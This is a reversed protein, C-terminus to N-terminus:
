AEGGRQFLFPGRVVASFEEAASLAVELRHLVPQEQTSFLSGLAIQEGCGCADFGHLSEAVQFDDEIRFLRGAYGVLFTGGSEVGNSVTAFGADKLKQRLASIFETVMFAYVDLDAHRKPPIFDHALIQGMRFSSTFGMVFPGNVFVKADRRKVLATGSVGASDGGIVVGDSDVIGVVCTM